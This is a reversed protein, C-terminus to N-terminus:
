GAVAQGDEADRQEALGFKAAAGCVGRRRATAFSM